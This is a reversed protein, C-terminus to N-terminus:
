FFHYSIELDFNSTHGRHFFFDTTVFTGKIYIKLPQRAIQLIERMFRWFLAALIFGYMYRDMTENGEIVSRDIGISFMVVFVLQAYLDLIIVTLVNPSIFSANLFKKVFEKKLLEKKRERKQKNTWFLMCKKTKDRSLLYSLAEKEGLQQILQDVLITILDISAGADFAHALPCLGDKDSKRLAEPYGHDEDLLYEVVKLDSSFQCAHHIPLCDKKNEVELLGIGGRDILMKIVDIGSGFRAATHLACDKDKNLDQISDKNALLEITEEKIKNGLAWQLGNSELATDKMQIMDQGGIKIMGQLIDDPAGRICAWQFPTAQTSGGSTHVKETSQTCLIQKKQQRATPDDHDEYIWKRIDAWNQPSNPSDIKKIFADVTFGQQPNTAM